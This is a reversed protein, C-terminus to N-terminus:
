LSELVDLLNTIDGDPAYYATRFGVATAPEIDNERSNGVFLCESPSIGDRAAAEVAFQFLTPDPKAVGRDCSLFVLEPNFISEYTCISCASEDRLLESLEILTYFQANSVIGQRMGRRKLETLADFAHLQLKKPNARREFFLAVEQAFSLSLATDPVAEELLQLWIQEIRVEPHPVGAARKADRDAAIERLFEHHLNEATIKLAFNHVTQEFAARLEAERAVLSNLDGREAAILTGYVDWFVVKTSAM